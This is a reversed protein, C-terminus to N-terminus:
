RWLGYQPRPNVPFTTWVMSRPCVTYLLPSAEEFGVPRKTFGTLYIEHNIFGFDSIRFGFSARLEFASFRQNRIEAKPNGQFKPRRIESKLM